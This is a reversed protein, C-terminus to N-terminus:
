TIDPSYHNVGNVKANISFVQSVTGAPPASAASGCGAALSSAAVIAIAIWTRLATM